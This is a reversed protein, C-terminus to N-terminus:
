RLPASSLVFTGSSPSVPGARSLRDCPITLLREVAPMLRAGYRDPRWGRAIEPPSKEWQGLWASAAAGTKASVRGWRRLRMPTDTGRCFDTVPLHTYSDSSRTLNGSLDRRSLSLRTKGPQPNRRIPVVSYEGRHVIQRRSRPHCNKSFNKQQTPSTM